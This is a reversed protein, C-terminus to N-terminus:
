RIYGNMPWGEAKFPTPLLSSQINKQIQDWLRYRVSFSVINYNSLNNMVEPQIEVIMGFISILNLGKM